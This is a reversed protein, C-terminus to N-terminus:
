VGSLRGFRAAPRHEGGTGEGNENQRPRRAIPSRDAACHQCQYAIQHRSVHSTIRCWGEETWRPSGNAPIHNACAVEGRRSWFLDSDPPLRTCVREIVRLLQATDLPKAIVQASRLVLLDCPHLPRASIVITPVGAVRPTQLQRRRFDWGSLGPLVLDLVIASVDPNEELLRLGTAGDGAEILGYNRSRLAEAICRRMQEHEEIVLVTLAQTDIRAPQSHIM